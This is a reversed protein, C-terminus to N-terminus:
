QCVMRMMENTDVAPLGTDRMVYCDLASSYVEPDAAQDWGAQFWCLVLLLILGAIAMPWEGSNNDSM